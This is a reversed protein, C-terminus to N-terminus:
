IRICVCGDETCIAIPGCKTGSFLDNCDEDGRCYCALDGCDFNLRGGAVHRLALKQTRIDSTLGVRLKGNVNHGSKQILEAVTFDGKETHVRIRGFDSDKPIAYITGKQSLDLTSVKTGSQRAVEQTKVRAPTTKPLQANGFPVVLSVLSLALLARKM